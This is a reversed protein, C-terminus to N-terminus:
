RLLTMQKVEFYGTAQLRYFYIGSPLHDADMTVQHTGAPREGHVLLLVQEGLANFVRLSVHTQVPLSYRIVTRPNFPNPYNQHLAYTLMESAPKVDTTTIIESYKRAGDLDVQCLRWGNCSGVRCRYAYEHTVTTTGHGPILTSVDTWDGGVRGQVIFGYNDTESITKWKLEISDTSITAATFSALTIPLPATGSIQVPATPTAYTFRTNSIQENLVDIPDATVVRVHVTMISYPNLLYANNNVSLWTSGGDFSIQTHASPSIMVYMFSNGTNQLTYSQPESPSTTVAFNLSNPTASLSYIPIASPSYIQACIKTGFLLSIVVIAFERKVSNEKARITKRPRQFSLVVSLSPSLVQCPVPPGSLSFASGLM